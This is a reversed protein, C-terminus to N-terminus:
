SCIRNKRMEIDLFDPNTPPDGIGFLVESAEFEEIIREARDKEFGSLL